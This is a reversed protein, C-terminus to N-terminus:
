GAENSSTTLRSNMATILTAIATLLFVLAVATQIVHTIHNEM